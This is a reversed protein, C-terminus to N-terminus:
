QHSTTCQLMEFQEDVVQEDVVLLETLLPGQYWIDSM